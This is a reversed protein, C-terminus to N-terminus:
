TMSVIYFWNEVDMWIIDRYAELICAAPELAFCQGGKASVFYPIFTDGNPPRLNEVIHKRTIRWYCERGLIYEEQPVLGHM